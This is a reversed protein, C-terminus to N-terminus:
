ENAYIRMGTIRMNYSYGTGGTISGLTVIANNGTTFAVTSTGMNVGDLYITAYGSTDFSIAVTKGALGNRGLATLEASYPSSWTSGSYGAWYNYNTGNRWILAGTGQSASTTCMFVRTHQNTVQVSMEAVDFEFTRGALQMTGLLCYQSAANFMVGTSDQIPDAGDGVHGLTAVAGSVSDVLSQTFDWNYLYNVPAQTVTVNFMDTLGAYIVTIISTGETLTGSLTYGSAPIVESTGGSYNATVVLDAKLSDLTDTDYVTGSQTYTASISELEAPPYLADYLDQYYDSGDDDIYAVKNALQLLAQKLDESLGVGSEEIAELRENLESVEETLETYDAPISEIVEAAKAEADEAFDELAQEEAARFIGTVDSGQEANEDALDAHVFVPVSFNKLVEEGAYLTIQIAGEGRVSFMSSTPEVTVNNGDISAVTYEFTGDFRQVYCRATAGAPITYDALQFQIDPETAGAVFNIPPQYEYETLRIKRIIM